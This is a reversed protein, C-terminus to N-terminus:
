KEVWLVALLVHEFFFSGISLKNIVILHSVMQVM